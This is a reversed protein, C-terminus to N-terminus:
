SMLLQIKWPKQEKPGLFQSKSTDIEYLVRMSYAVSIDVFDFSTPVLRFGGWAEPTEIKKGDMSNLIEEL